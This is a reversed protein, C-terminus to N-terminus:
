GWIIQYALSGNFYVLMYKNVSLIEAMFRIPYILLENPYNQPWRVM